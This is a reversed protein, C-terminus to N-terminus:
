VGGGLTYGSFRIDSGPPKVQWPVNSIFGVHRALWKLGANILEKKQPHMKIVKLAHTLTKRTLAFYINIPKIDIKGCAADGRADEISDILNGLVSVERLFEAFNENSNFESALALIMGATSRAEKEREEIFERPNRTSSFKRGSDFVEKTKNLFETRQADSSNDLLNKLIFLSECVRAEGKIALNEKGDLYDLINRIACGQWSKDLADVYRNVWFMSKMLSSFIEKTNESVSDFFGREAMYIIANAARTYQSTNEM